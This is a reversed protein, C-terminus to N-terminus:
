CKSRQVGSTVESLETLLDDKLFPKSLVAIAGFSNVAMDPYVVIKRYHGDDDVVFIYEM